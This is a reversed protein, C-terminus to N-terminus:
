VFPGLAKGGHPRGSPVRTPQHMGRVFGAAFGPFSTQVDRLRLTRLPRRVETRVIVEGDVVADVAAGVAAIVKPALGETMVKRLRVVIPARAEIRGRVKSAKRGPVGTLVLAPSVKRVHVVSPDLGVNVRQVLVRRKYAKPLHPKHLAQMRDTADTAIAAVM